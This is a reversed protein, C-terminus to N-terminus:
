SPKLNALISEIFQDAQVLKGTAREHNSTALIKLLALSEQTEEFTTIDQIVAKAEGNQTIFFPAREESLKELIETANAKFYSISKIRTGYYM